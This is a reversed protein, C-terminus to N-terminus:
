RSRHGIGLEIVIMRVSMDVGECAVVAVALLLGDNRDLGNVLVSSTSSLTIDLGLSGYPGTTSATVATTRTTVLTTLKLCRFNLRYGFYQSPIAKRSRPAPLLRFWFRDV